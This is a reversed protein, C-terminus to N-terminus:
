RLLRRVVRWYLNFVPNAVRLVPGGLNYNTIRGTFPKTVSRESARREYQRKHRRTRISPWQKLIYRYGRLKLPFWGKLLSLTVIGVEALLLAPLLLLLTLFRYNMILVLLRNREGYEYKIATSRSFEYRHFVRSSPVLMSRKGALRIRWGLDLDEHYMFFDAEFLGGCLMIDRVRVVLAAGSAYPVETPKFLYRRSRSDALMRGEGNSFGFGLFHIANGASNIKERDQSYLILPQAAVVTEDTQFLNVIPTLWHPTVECDQNVFAVFDAGRAVALEYGAVCAGAYGTNKKMEHVVATPFDARMMAVSGDTSANDVVLIELGDYQCQVLASLALRLDEAGNYSPIVAVVHPPKHETM